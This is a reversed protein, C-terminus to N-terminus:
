LVMVTKQVTSSCCGLFFYFIFIFFDRHTQLFPPIATEFVQHDGNAPMVQYLDNYTKDPPFGTLNAYNLMRDM